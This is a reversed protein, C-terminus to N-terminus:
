ARGNIPMTRHDTSATASNQNLWDLTNIIYINVNNIEDETLQSNLDKNNVTKQIRDLYKEFGNM